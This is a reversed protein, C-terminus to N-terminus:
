KPRQLGGVLRQHRNPQHWGMFVLIGTVVVVAVVAIIVVAVVIMVHSLHYSDHFLFFSICSAHGFLVASLVAGFLVAGFLVASLVAGFACCWFAGCRM